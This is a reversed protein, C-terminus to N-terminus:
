DSLKGSVISSGHVAICNAFNQPTAQAQGIGEIPAVFPDHHFPERMFDHRFDRTSHANLSRTTGGSRSKRSIPVIELLRFAIIALSGVLGLVLPSV